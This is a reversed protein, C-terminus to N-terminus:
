EGGGGELKALFSVAKKLAIQVDCYECLENDDCTECFSSGKIMELAKCATKLAEMAEPILNACTVLYNAVDKQIKHAQSATLGFLSKERLTDWGKIDAVRIYGIKSNATFINVDDTDDVRLPLPFYKEFERTM